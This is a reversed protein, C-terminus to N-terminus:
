GPQVVFAVVTTGGFMGACGVDSVVPLELFGAIRENGM